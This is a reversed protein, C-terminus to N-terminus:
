HSSIVSSNLSLIDIISAPLQEPQIEQWYTVGRLPTVYLELLAGERLRKSTSFTLKKPKGRDDYADLSYDYRKNNGSEAKSDIVITYYISKGVPNDPTLRDPNMFYIAAGVLTIIVLSILALLSKKM